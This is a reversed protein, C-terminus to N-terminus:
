ILDRSFRFFFMPSKNSEIIAIISFEGALNSGTKEDYNIKQNYYAEPKMPPLPIPYQTPPPVNNSNMTSIPLKQSTSSAGTHEENSHSDISSNASDNSGDNNHKVKVDSIGDKGNKHLNAYDKRRGRRRQSSSGSSSSTDDIIEIVEQQNQHSPQQPPEQNNNNQEISIDETSQTRRKQRDDFSSAPPRRKRTPHPM